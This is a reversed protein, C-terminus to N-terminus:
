RGEEPATRARLATITGRGVAAELRAVLAPGMLEIEAAWVAEDCAVRLVGGREGTPRCHAAIAPGVASDWAGQVRALPTRPELRRALAAVAGAIPRPAHRRM